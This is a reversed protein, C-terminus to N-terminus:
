HYEQNMLDSIKKMMAVANDCNPKFLHFVHDEGQAEMIEVDGSYGREKLVRAYWLDRDRLRDKEAVCVLVKKCVLEDLHPLNKPNIHPDDCGNEITPFIVQFLKDPDLVELDKEGSGIAENSWFFPHILFISLLKFGISDDLGVQVAVFNAINAGASDGGFFVRGPDAFDRIWSEHGNEGIQSYVWKTAEWADDYAIPLLHEPARRYDVSVAVVNAENVLNNLFNHYAVSSSSEIVFGGGHFYILLPLKQPPNTLKPIYLRASLSTQLSITIDKSNVGTQPDLGPPVTAAGLLREVHGDKYIKLFPSLDQAIEGTTAEMRPLLHSLLPLSPKAKSLPHFLRHIITEYSIEGNWGSKRLAEYYCCGRDKGRDKGAVHVKKFDAHDILWKEDGWGGHSRGHAHSTVWKLAKWSDECAIPLPSEPALRLGHSHLEEVKESGHNFLHFAHDEGESEVIEVEGGWGCKKLVEYYECGRDKFRDKEAVCVLVRKCGLRGLDPNVRPNMIPDVRIDTSPFLIRLFKDDEGKNFYPHVLVLGLIEVGGLGHVGVQIAVNHAINAGASEGAMFVRGFDAYELLWEEEGSGSAHSTVWKLAEWSDEYCIPLPNEPALRYNISIIMINAKAVFKTCYIQSLPHSASYTCFAGGHFHILLPFKQPNQTVKPIFIRASVGTQPFITIDKSHVGTEPDDCPPVTETGKLREVQGDKYIKFYPACDMAVESKISDM